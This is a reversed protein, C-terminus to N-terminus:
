VVVRKWFLREPAFNLVLGVRMRTARLYHILQACYIPPFDRTSKIELIVSDAVILDAYYNGVLRNRFFVHMPAQRVVDLGAAALAIELAKEYVSELFGPGLENWVSMAEGIIKGTLESEILEVTKMDM